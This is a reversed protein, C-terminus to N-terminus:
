ACPPDVVNDDGGEDGFDIATPLEIAVRGSKLGQQLRNTAYIKIVATKLRVAPRIRLEGSELKKLSPRRGEVQAAAPLPQDTCIEQEKVQQQQIEEEAIESPIEDRKLRVSIPNEPTAGAKPSSPPVQSGKRLSYNRFTEGSEQRQYNNKKQRSVLKLAVHGGTTPRISFVGSLMEAAGAVLSSLTSRPAGGDGGHGEAECKNTAVAASSLALAHSAAMSQFLASSAVFKMYSTVKNRKFISTGNAANLLDTFTVMSDPSKALKNCFLLAENLSAFVEARYFSDALTKQAAGEDSPKFKLTVFHRRCAEIEYHTLEVMQGVLVKNEACWAMWEEPGAAANKKGQMDKEVVKVVVIDRSKNKRYVAKKPAKEERRNGLM